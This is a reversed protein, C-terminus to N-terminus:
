MLLYTWRTRPEPMYIMSVKKERSINRLTFFVSQGEQAIEWLDLEVKFAQAVTLTM